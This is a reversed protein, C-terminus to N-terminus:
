KKPANLYANQINGELIDLYNLATILFTLRVSDRSVVSVDTMSLPPDSLIRRAMYRAKRTLEMKAYLILHCTIVQEM